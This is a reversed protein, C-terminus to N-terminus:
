KLGHKAVFYGFSSNNTAATQFSFVRLIEVMFDIRSIFRKPRLADFQEKTLANTSGQFSLKMKKADSSSIGALYWSEIEKVVVFINEPDLAHYREILQFRKESVCMAGDIDRLFCYRAGMGKISTIYSKIKESKLGAYKITQIHSYQAELRPRLTSNFFREDDDGELFAFLQVYSM